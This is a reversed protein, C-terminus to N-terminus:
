FTQVDTGTERGRQVLPLALSMVEGHVHQIAMRKFSRSSLELGTDAQAYM